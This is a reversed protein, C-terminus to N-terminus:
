KKHWINNISKKKKTLRKKKKGSGSQFAKKINEVTEKFRKKSSQKIDSSEDNMDQEFKSFGNSIESGVKNALDKIIPTANNQIIPIVWRFFQKFVSGFGYGRQFIPGRFGELNNNKAQNEYYKYYDM